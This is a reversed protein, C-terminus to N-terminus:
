LDNQIDKPSLQNSFKAMKEDFDKVEFAVLFQILAQSHAPFQISQQDGNEDPYLVTTQGDVAPLICLNRPNHLANLNRRFEEMKRRKTRRKDAWAVYCCLAVPSLLLPLTYWEVM